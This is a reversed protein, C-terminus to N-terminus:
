EREEFFCLKGFDGLVYLLAQVGVVILKQLKGDLDVSHM